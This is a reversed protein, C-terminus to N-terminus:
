PFSATPRHAALPNEVSVPQHAQGHQGEIQQVAQGQPGPVAAKSPPHCPNGPLGGGLQLPHFPPLRHLFPVLTPQAPAEGMYLPQQGKVPVQVLQVFLVRRHLPIQALQQRHKQPQRHYVPPPFVGLRGVEAMKKGAVLQVPPEPSIALGGPELSLHEQPHHASIQFLVAKVAPDVGELGQTGKAVLLDHHFGNLIQASPVPRDEM